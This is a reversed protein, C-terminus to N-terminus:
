RRTAIIHGILSYGELADLLRILEPETLTKWSEVDRRLIMEALGIRDDRDLRYITCYHM